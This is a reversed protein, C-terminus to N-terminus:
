SPPVYFPGYRRRRGYRRKGSLIPMYPRGPDWIPFMKRAEVREVGADNFHQVTERDAGQRVRNRMAHFAAEVVLRRLPVYVSLSDSYVNLAAHPAMYIVDLTDLAPPQDRFILLTNETRWNTLEMPRPDDSDSYQHLYVRRVRDGRAAAPLTYETQGAAVTLSSDIQPVPGMDVLARNVAGRLDDITWDKGALGYYDGSAPAVTWSTTLTGSSATYATVEAYQGEPAASAGGADYTLFATGGKWTADDGGLGSDVLTSTSGGTATGYQMIGLEDALALVIDFLTPNSATM